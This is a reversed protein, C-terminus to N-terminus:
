AASRALFRVLAAAKPVLSSLEIREDATHFAAGRPGLGDISPVGAAGTTNADSGGGVLPAEGSGLGAAVQCAGYAAALAASAATRELPPRAAGRSVAISTGPVAVEAALAALRALLADGDGATLYRLDVQALARDPVTNKSTGGEFRGVNVTVGSGYDTLGQAADVFRALSWVANRGREHENGAHAAVGRAEVQVAGVGKRRTVLLDGQRGSELGLACAAGRARAALLPSSEPSGVEEDAVFMGRVPVRELLGAERLAELAFLGVVLGGKMDFTGPGRALDGEVRFGEFSGPPFVTDAHGVLFAPAGPAPGSFALHPGFRASALRETALGLARLRAEVVEVVAAVGAPNGTHSNQLVLRELLATMAPLQGALWRLALDLRPEPGPSM